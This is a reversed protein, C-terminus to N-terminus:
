LRHRVQKHAGETQEKALQLQAILHKLRERRDFPGEGFLTIPHGIERLKAKVDEVSTPVVITRARKQAEFAQMLTAHKLQEAKSEASLDLVEMQMAGAINVNGAEIAAALARNGLLSMILFGKEGESILDGM